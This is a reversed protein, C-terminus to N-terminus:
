FDSGGRSGARDAKVSVIGSVPLFVRSREPVVCFLFLGAMFFVASRVISLKAAGSRRWRISAMGSPVARMPMLVVPLAM